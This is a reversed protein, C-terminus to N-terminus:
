GFMDKAVRVGKEPSTVKVDAIQELRKRLPARNAIQVKLGARANIELLIPGLNEDLAIDCALYGLNSMVQCKSAILLMEDFFPVKFEKAFKGVEPIERIIKYKRALYTPKGNSIDLGVGIAGQALNARGQSEKTPLRLMAMVPIMNYVIIRVDPLGQYTYKKFEHHTEIRQEFFAYDRTQNMSFRGDLIDRIHAILDELSIERDNVTIFTSGKRAKFAIIGEGGSGQNPKLVVNGPLSAFDFRELEEYSKIVAFLKPVPIGRASLYNKTKLKSDAFGIADENNNENIYLLNRANNGLIGKQSKYM